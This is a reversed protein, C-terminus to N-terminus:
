ANQQSISTSASTMASLEWQAVVLHFDVVKVLVGFEGVLQAM